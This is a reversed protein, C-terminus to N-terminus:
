TTRFPVHRKFSPCDIEVPGKFPVAISFVSLSLLVYAYGLLMMTRTRCQRREIHCDRIHGVGQAWHSRTLRYRQAQLTSATAIGRSSPDALARVGEVSAIPRCSVDLQQIRLRSYGLVPLSLASQSGPRYSTRNLLQRRLLCNQCTDSGQRSM